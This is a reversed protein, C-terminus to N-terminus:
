GSDRGASDLMWVDGDRDTFVSGIPYGDPIADTIEPM